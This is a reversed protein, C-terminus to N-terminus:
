KISSWLNVLSAKTGFLTWLHRKVSEIALMKQKECWITWLPALVLSTTGTACICSQKYMFRAHVSTTRTIIYIYILDAWFTASLLSYVAITIEGYIWASMSRLAICQEFQFHCLQLSNLTSKVEFDSKLHSQVKKTFELTNNTQLAQAFSKCLFM